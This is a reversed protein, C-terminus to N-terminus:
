VGGAPPSKKPRGRPKKAAEVPLEPNKRPRGRPRKPQGAEPLPNKRPRGRPRKQQQEGPAPNKRPRGRKKPEPKPVPTSLGLAELVEFEERTPNNVWYEDDSSPLTTPADVKRCVRSLDDLVDGYSMRALLGAQAAKKLMRCTITTSIYNIFESGIVSFNGQVSTRDLYEDNKYRDFVLELQWRERYCAYAAEPTMDLDSEFVIVGFLDKKKLYKDQDHVGTKESRYIFAAEEEEAKEPDRFSYLYRGGKIQAKRYFVPKGVGVTSGDYNLMDNNRIRVDNRRIPTIFHLDPREKLDEAIRSPPFGKDAIIVGKRIDNDRIFTSYASADICNGPFVQACIPEMAEVDYAYIVSIERCGRTRAKYSFASLSNVESNDQKLMGDIVVHHGAMVAAARLGYFARRKAGDMGLKELFTGITNQSLAVGQYYRCLFCSRYEKSMRFATVSPRIARLIAICIAKYCDELPYVQALDM